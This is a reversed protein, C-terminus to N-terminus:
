FILNLHIIWTVYNELTDLWHQLDKKWGAIYIMLFYDKCPKEKYLNRVDTAMESILVNLYDVCADDNVASMAENLNENLSKNPKESEDINVEMANGNGFVMETDDEEDTPLQEQRECTEKKKEIEIGAYRVLCDTCLFQKKRTFLNKDILKTVADTISRKRCNFVNYVHSDNDIHATCKCVNSKFRKSHLQKRTSM